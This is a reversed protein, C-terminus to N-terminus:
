VRRAFWREISDPRAGDDIHTYGHLAIEDGRSLRSDIAGRFQLDRTFPPAGHYCPVVLLTAPIQEDVSAVLEALGGSAVAVVPIGCAMAEILVLGFTEEAGAHIFADCSALVRALRVSVPEYPLVTVQANLRELKDGGILLLHYPQGLRAAASILDLTQECCATGLM